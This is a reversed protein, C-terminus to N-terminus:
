EVPLKLRHQKFLRFLWGALLGIALIISYSLVNPQVQDYYYDLITMTLGIGMWGAVICLPVSLVYSIVRANKPLAVSGEIFNIAQDEFFPLFLFPVVLFVVPWFFDTSHLATLILLQLVYSTSFFVYYMVMGFLKHAVSSRKGKVAWYIGTMVLPGYALLLLTGSSKLKIFHDIYNMILLYIGVLIAFILAIRFFSVFFSIVPNRKQKVPLSFEM